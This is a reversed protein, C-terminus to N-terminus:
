LCQDRIVIRERSCQFRPSDRICILIGEKGAGSAIVFIPGGPIKATLGAVHTWGRANSAILCTYGGSIVQRQMILSSSIVPHRYSDLIEVVKAFESKASAKRGLLASGQNVSCDTRPM